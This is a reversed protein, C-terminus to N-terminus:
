RGIVVKKGNVIYIGPKLSNPHLRRGSLDYIAGIGDAVEQPVVPIDTQENVLVRHRLASRVAFYAPKKSLGATYLLPNSTDRWSNNDKLGWIILNPCNDNNLVIDTIVRYNRAQEELNQSSTSPIGMDLETIICKLGAEAFKRITNDLKVSDVDGISFHCQLGVGDIPIGSKKLRM